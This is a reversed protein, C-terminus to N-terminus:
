FIFQSYSFKRANELKDAPIVEQSLVERGIHVRTINGM